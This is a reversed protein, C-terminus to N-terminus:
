PASLGAITMDSIADSRATDNIGAYRCVKIGHDTTLRGSSPSAGVISM